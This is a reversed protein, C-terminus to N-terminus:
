PVGIQVEQQLSDKPQKSSSFTICWDFHIGV